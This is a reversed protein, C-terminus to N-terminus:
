RVQAGPALTTALWDRLEAVFRPDIGHAVPSERYTVDLGAATLREAADRGFQVPIVPDFSGHGIAVPLRGREALALEFGPVEPLFGSLAVIGAPSPRGAGLGLAYSMVSGQSFGGLVTREWPTGTREPLADLWAALAARTPGFTGPDPTPIGGLAYWHAGGPPLALPGRPTVVVLRRDPDLADALPLLDFQDAGRGHLLVLAGDPADRAPRVGHTLDTATM